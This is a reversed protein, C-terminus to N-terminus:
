LLIKLTALKNYSQAGGNTYATLKEDKNCDRINTVLNPNNAVNCTSCTDLLIWIKPVDFSDDDQTLMYGIHALVIGTINEYPCM